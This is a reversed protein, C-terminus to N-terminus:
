QNPCLKKCHERILAQHEEFTHSFYVVGDDGAVFYLYDTTAPHAVAQLSSSSVNSIPGPPLGKHLHTNYASDYTVSPAKDDKIAGYIATVDSGLVMDERLRKLFVQAIKARDDQKSGEREVMSALVIGQYVSLGQGTIAARIDPPLHKQMEDLSQRVITSPKTDATKQFSEPYLFGELSAGAPKDVLAPHDAYNAPNFAADVDQPSFGYKNIFAEKIQDLRQAPLITVLDTAVKGHTIVSAIEPTSLSPRLSYTGALLSDRLNQNRIYWEFAWSTRILHAQKLITAIESTSAGLPITVLQSKPSTSVPRLNADYVKRVALVSGGFVLGVIIFIALIKTWRKKPIRISIKTM